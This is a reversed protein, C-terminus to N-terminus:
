LAFYKEGILVYFIVMAMIIFGLILDAKKHIKLLAKGADPLFSDASKLQIFKKPALFIIFIALLNIAMGYIFPLFALTLGVAFTFITGLSATYFVIAIHDRVSVDLKKSLKLVLLLKVICFFLTVPVFVKSFLLDMLFSFNTYGGEDDFMANFDADHRKGVESWDIFFSNVLIFYGCFSLFFKTPKVYTNEGSNLSKLIEDPKRLLDKLTKLMGSEYGVTDKFLDVFFNYNIKDNM